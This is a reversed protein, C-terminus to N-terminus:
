SQPRDTAAALFALFARDEDTDAAPAHHRGAPPAASVSQGWDVPPPDGWQPRADAMREVRGRRPARRSRAARRSQDFGAGARRRLRRVTLWVGGAVLAAFILLSAAGGIVAGIGGGSPPLAVPVAHGPAPIKVSTAVAGSSVLRSGHEGAKAVPAARFALGAYHTGRDGAPPTATIVVTRSQGAKITFSAPSVRLWPRGATEAPFMQELRTYSATQTTIRLATTGGDHITFSGHEGPKLTVRAPVTLSIVPRATHATPRHTM